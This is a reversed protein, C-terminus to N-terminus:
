RATSRRGPRPGRRALHDEGVLGVRAPGRGHLRGPQGGLHQLLVHLAAGAGPGPDGALVRGALGAGGLVGAVAPEDAERRVEGGRHPDARGVSLTSTACGAAGPMVPPEYGASIQPRYMRAQCSPRRPAGLVLLGLRGGAAPLVEPEVALEVGPPPSRATAADDDERCPSSWWSARGRGTASWSWRRGVSSSWRRGLVAAASRVSRRGAPSADGHCACSALHPVSSGSPRGGRRGPARCRRRGARAGGRAGARAPGLEVLDIARARGARPARPRPRPAAGRAPRPWCRSSSSIAESLSRASGARCSARCRCSRCGGRAAPAAPRSRRRELAPDGLELVLLELEHLLDLREVGLQGREARRARGREVLAAVASRACIASSSTAISASSSRRAPRAPRADRGLTSGSSSPRTRRRQPRLGAADGDGAEDPPEHPPQWRLRDATSTSRM